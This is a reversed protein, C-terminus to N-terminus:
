KGGNRRIYRLISAYTVRRLRGLGVADLEGATILREVTRRSMALMEAARLISVLLPQNEAGPALPTSPPAHRAM